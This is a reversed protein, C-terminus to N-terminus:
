PYLEKVQGDQLELAALHRGYHASIGTDVGYLRGDCRSAIRGSEQPTHGVVMRSAGVATLVRTLEPCTVSEADLLYSRNWLPGDKGLIERVPGDISSRVLRNVAAVGEGAWRASLGGHMFVTGEVTAVADRARLWAGDQGTPSFALKRAAEGGYGALDAGSVYRWDGQMNMVEHNGLLAVVRGGSREAETTLRRLLAVAGRSDPGRDTIDGTQVLTTSGGTWHGSADVVGAMRLVAVGAEVDGHLDGVAVVRPGGLATALSFWLM